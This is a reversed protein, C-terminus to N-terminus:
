GFYSQLTDIDYKCYGLYRQFADNSSYLMAQRIKSQYEAIYEKAMPLLETNKYSEIITQILRLYVVIDYCRRAEKSSPKQRMLIKRARDVAKDEPLRDPNILIQKSHYTIDDEVETKYTKFIIDITKEDIQDFDLILKHPRLNHESIDALTTPNKVIVTDALNMNHLNKIVNTGNIEVERGNWELNSGIYKADPTVIIRGKQPIGIVVGNSDLTAAAGLLNAKMAFRKEKNAIKEQEVQEINKSSLQATLRAEDEISRNLLKGDSSVRLNVVGIQNNMIARKLADKDVIKREGSVSVLDYQLIVGNKDRIKDVCKCWIM